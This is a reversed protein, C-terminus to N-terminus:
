SAAELKLTKPAYADASPQELTKGKPEPLVAITLLLGAAAVVGAVIEAGRIGLSSALMDAFLFAGAFAGM